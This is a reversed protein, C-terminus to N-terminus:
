RAKLEKIARPVCLLLDSALTGTDGLEERLLAGAASHLYVGLVAADFLTMGQALLGAIMGSLVDGTGGTALAANGAAHVVNRGDPAAVVTTAGKLVVVQGWASAANTAVQVLDADLEEVGLLRKIEGPHPTLILRNHEMDESWEDIEALINLGDADLVMPPLQSAKKHDDSKETEINHVRFGVRSLKRPQELGLLRKVFQTTPKEKGLGPGVLLAQYGTINKLIEEAAEADISGLPAEHLPLLTVDASRGSLGLISRATALTVLGAGVRSAGGTALAAAGPYNLSGAVVMVKGFTGKHADEPRPPLLARADERSITTSMITELSSSPIGIEALAVTGAYGRGPYLMLGRKPLGTAVTTDARIATELVAGSDSQVGTPMDISLIAYVSQGAKPAARRLQDVVGVIEALEGTVPRTVGMGLLADIVLSARSLLDRLRSRSEDDAALVEALTRERCRQWNADQGPKWTRKWIYLSVSAGADHLHRAAVLGDGGNNGPGVLVVVPRKRADGLLRLAEQAVGWGAQEMLGAWTDGADVAIQELHRMQETTALRM